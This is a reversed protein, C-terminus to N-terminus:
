GRDRCGRHVIGDGIGGFGVPDVEHDHSRLCRKGGTDGVDEDSRPMRTNPGLRFPALSSDDFAYALSTMTRAPTGVAWAQVKVSRSAADAWM